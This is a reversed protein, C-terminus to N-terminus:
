RVSQKRSIQELDGKDYFSNLQARAKGLDQLAQIQAHASLEDLDINIHCTRTHLLCYPNADKAMLTQLALCDMDSFDIQHPRGTAPNDSISTISAKIEPVTSDGSFCFQAQWERSLHKGQELAIGTAVQRLVTEVREKGPKSLPDCFMQIIGFRMRKFGFFRIIWIWVMAGALPMVSPHTNPLVNVILGACSFIFVMAMLIVAAKRETKRQAPSSPFRAAGPRQFKFSPFRYQVWLMAYFLFFIPLSGLLEALIQEPSQIDPRMVHLYSAGLVPYVVLFIASPLLIERSLGPAKRSQPM